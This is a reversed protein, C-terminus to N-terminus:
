LPPFFIFFFFFNATSSYFKQKKKKKLKCCGVKTSWCEPLYPGSLTNYKLACVTSNVFNPRFPSGRLPSGDLVIAIEHVGGELPQFSFSFKGNEIASFTFPLSEFNPEPGTIQISVNVPSLYPDGFGDLMTVFVTSATNTVGGELGPGYAYSLITDLAFFGNYCPQSLVTSFLSLLFVLTGFRLDM